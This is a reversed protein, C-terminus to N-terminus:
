HPCFDRLTFSFLTLNYRIRQSRSVCRCLHRIPLYYVGVLIAFPHIFTIVTLRFFFSFLFFFLFFCILMILATRGGRAWSRLFIFKLYVRWPTMTWRNETGSARLFCLFRDGFGRHCDDEFPWTILRILTPLSLRIWNGGKYTRGNRVMKCWHLCTQM